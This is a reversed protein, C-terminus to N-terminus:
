LLEAQASSYLWLKPAFVTSRGVHVCGSLLKAKSGTRHPRLFLICFSPPAAAWKDTSEARAEPPQKRVKGKLSGSRTEVGCVRLTSLTVSSPEASASSSILLEGYQVQAKTEGRQTNIYSLDSSCAPPFSLLILEQGKSVLLLKAVNLNKSIFQKSTHFSIKQQPLLLGESPSDTFIPPNVRWKIWQLM